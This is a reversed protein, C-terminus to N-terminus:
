LLISPGFPSKLLQSALYLWSHHGLVEHPRFIVSNACCINRLSLLQVPAWVRAVHVELGHCHLAVTAAHVQSCVPMVFATLMTDPHMGCIGSKETAIDASM